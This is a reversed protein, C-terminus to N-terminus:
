DDIYISPIFWVKTNEIEKKNKSKTQNYVDSYNQYISMPWSCPWKRYNIKISAIMINKIFENINQNISEYFETFEKSKLIHKWFKRDNKKDYAIWLEKCYSKIESILENIDKNWYVESSEDETVIQELVEEDKKPTLDLLTSNLLTSNLLTLYTGIQICGTDLRGKIWDPLWDIVREIWKEVSPNMSQNKIFNIIIMRNNKYVIKKDESLKYVAQLLRDKEIWTDFCMQRETIEYIWAINVNQNTLLYLFLLKEVQWLEQIYPDIWFSDKIYRQKAMILFNTYYFSAPEGALSLGVLELHRSVQTTRQIHEYYLWKFKFTFVNKINKIIELRTDYKDSNWYISKM